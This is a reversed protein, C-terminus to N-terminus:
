SKNSPARERERQLRAIHEKVKETSIYAMGRSGWGRGWGAKEVILLPPRLSSSLAGGHWLEWLSQTMM